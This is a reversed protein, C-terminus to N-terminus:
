YVLTCTIFSETRAFFAYRGLKAAKNSNDSGEDRFQGDAAPHSGVM